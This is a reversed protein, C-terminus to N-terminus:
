NFCVVKKKITGYFGSPWSSRLKTLQSKGIELSQDLNITSDALQGNVINLLKGGEHEESNM